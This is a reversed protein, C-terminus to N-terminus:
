VLLIMGNNIIHNNQEKNLQTNYRSKLPNNTEKITIKQVNM